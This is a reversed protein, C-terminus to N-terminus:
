KAIFICASPPYVRQADAGDVGHRSSPTCISRDGPPGMALANPATVSRTLRRDEVPMRAAMHEAFPATVASALDPGLNRNAM